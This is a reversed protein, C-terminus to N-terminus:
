SVKDLVQKMLSGIQGISLNNMVYERGNIGMLEALEPNDKLYLISKSLMESNGPEIILGSKTEAIYRSPQGNSCCLIPKGAAQYEYLKSSIGMEISSSGNLPLLLADADFLIQAVEERSIIKEIVKTNKLKMANVKSNLSSALEGGGQIVFEIDDFSILTKAARLVQDFNYAQSFAGIYLVRFRSKGLGVVKPKQIFISLDVGSPVVYVKNQPVNYRNTIVSVYAPSLPTIASAIKYARKALHKCVRFILSKKSVKLDYFADPWLDDVNQVVPCHALIKYISGPIMSIINPNAAWVIDVKGVAPTAFLSSIIYSLFLLFRRAYGDSALHPVFTRIVKVQGEKEITLLKGKYKATIKGTPYHPFASVVTVKCGSNCLGKVMNYARTAGGGMDPPYYQAIVLVNM